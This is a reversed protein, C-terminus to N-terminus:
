FVGVVTASTPGPVITISAEQRGRAPDGEPLEDKYHLLWPVGLGVVTGIAAGTIVDSAHHNDSVVRLAGTTGALGFAAVCAAADAIPDDYLALYAHHMCTLGATTFATSAHGSFFSRHQNDEDCEDTRAIYPDDCEESLPRTRAIAGKVVSNIGANIALAELDIAAMQYAVSGKNRGWWAVVGADFAVFNMSAVLTIDSADDALKRGNRTDARLADRVGDDFGNRWAGRGDGTPIFLGGLAMVGFLGTVVYESKRFEPYRWVFDDRETRRGLARPALPEPTADRGDSPDGDGPPAPPEDGADAPPPQALAHGSGGCLIAAVTALTCPWVAHTRRSRDLNSRAELTRSTAGLPGVPVGRASPVGDIM